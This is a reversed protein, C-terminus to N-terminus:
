EEAGRPPRARWAPAPCAIPVDEGRSCTSIRRMARAAAPDPDYGGHICIAEGARDLARVHARAMQGAGIIGVHRRASSM